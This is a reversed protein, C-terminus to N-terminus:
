KKWRYIRVLAAIYVLLSLGMVSWEFGFAAWLSTSNNTQTVFHFRVFETWTTAIALLLSGLLAWLGALTLRALQRLQQSGVAWYAVLYEIIPLLWTSAQWTWTGTNTFFRLSTSLMIAIQSGYTLFLLVLFLKQFRPGLELTRSQKAM